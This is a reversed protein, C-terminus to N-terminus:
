DSTDKKECLQELLVIVWLAIMMILRIETLMAKVEQGRAVLEHSRRSDGM